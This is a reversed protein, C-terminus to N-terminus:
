KLACLSATDGAPATCVLAPPAYLRLSAATPVQMPEPQSRTEPVPSLVKKVAAERTRKEPIKALVPRTGSEQGRADAVNKGGSRTRPEAVRNGIDVPATRPRLEMRCAAPGCSDAPM